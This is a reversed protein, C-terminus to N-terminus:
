ACLYEGEFRRWVLSLGLIELDHTSRCSTTPYCPRIRLQPDVAALKSPTWHGVFLLEVLPAPQMEFPCFRADTSRPVHFCWHLVHWLFISKPCNQCCANSPAALQFGILLRWWFSRFCDHFLCFGDTKAKWAFTEVKLFCGWGPSCASLPTCRPPENPSERRLGIM